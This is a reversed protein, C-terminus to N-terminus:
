QGSGNGGPQLGNGNGPLKSRCENFAKQYAPSSQDVGSPAVIAGNPSPEPFDPVGHTQM